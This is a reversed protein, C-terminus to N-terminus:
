KCWRQQRLLQRRAQAAPEVRARGAGGGCRQGWPAQRSPGEHQSRLSCPTTSGAPCYPTCTLGTPAPTFPLLSNAALCSPSTPAPRVACRPAGPGGGPGGGRGAGGRCSRRAPPTRRRTPRAPPAPFRAPWAPWCTQGHTRRALCAPPPPPCRPKVRHAAAPPPPGQRFASLSPAGAGKWAPAEQCPQGLPQMTHRGHLCGRATSGRAPCTPPGSPLSAGQAMRCQRTALPLVCRTAPAARLESCRAPPVAAQWSGDSRLAALRAAGAHAGSAPVGADGIRVGLQADDKLAALAQADVRPGCLQAADPDHGEEPAHRPAPTKHQQCPGVCM